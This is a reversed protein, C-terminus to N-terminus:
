KKLAKAIKEQSLPKTCLFWEYCTVAEEPDKKKKDMEEMSQPAPVIVDDGPHWDAPLAVGFKDVTQLGILVRKIEDFNRGLAMPYYIIARIINHPDIFFVTRVAQTKSEGPHLMGYTQAIKMSLDAILPFHFKTDSMGKYNMKEMTHLWAMHSPISDISLGILQCNLSEFECTLHGFTLLESTCVSTFDSPHSFLVVWKGEFDEPFNIEGTTTAAKFAPAEDGIRLMNNVEKEM